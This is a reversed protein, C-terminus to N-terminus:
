RKIRMGVNFVHFRALAGQMDILGIGLEQFTNRVSQEIFPYRNPIVCGLYLSYRLNKESMITKREKILNPYFM